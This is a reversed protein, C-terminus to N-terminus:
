PKVKPAPSQRAPSDKRGMRELPALLRIVLMARHGRSAASVRSRLGKRGSAVEPDPSAREKRASQGVFPHVKRGTVVTTGRPAPCDM